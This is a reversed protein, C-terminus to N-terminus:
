RMRRGNLVAFVANTGQPVGISDSVPRCKARLVHIVPVPVKAESTSEYNAMGKMIMLDSAAMADKLPEPLDSWDIGVYFKGTDVIEDLDSALGSREADERTVDNLICQGRVVGTVHKGNRRLERLLIRDLQSEGCNDFFYLIRRSGSILSTILEEDYLGLGQDMLEDFVGEFEEGSDVAQANSGFDMINGVSAVLLAASLRNESADVRGQARSSLRDAASDAGSKLKRYPDKTSLRSYAAEHVATGVESTTRGPDICRALAKLGAEVSPFEDVCDDLRAQFLVRKMLCPVCDAQIKM